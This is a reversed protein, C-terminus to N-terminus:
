TFVNYITVALLDEIISVAADETARAAARDDRRGMATVVVVRPIPMCARSTM